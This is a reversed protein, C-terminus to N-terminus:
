KQVSEGTTAPLRICVELGGEARNSAAITGQHLRVAKEAIALGLGYGGTERTRAQDIRHFPEFMQQLQDSDVGPGSDLICISIQDPKSEVRLYVQEESYKLANRVINEVARSILKTDVLAQLSAPAELTVRQQEFNADQVLKSLLTTLEQPELKLTEPKMDLRVLELIEDILENIRGTELEIRDLEVAEGNRKRALELAIVLRTLPTRLEHSVDRLMQQQGQLLSQLRQAMNDFDRGLEGLEDKRDGMAESVRSSLDGEALRRSASQLLRVPKVLYHSLLMAVLAVILVSIAIRWILNSRAYLHDSLEHPNLIIFHYRAGSDSTVPWIIPKDRREIFKERGSRHEWREHNDDDEDHDRFQSRSGRQLFRHLRRPLPRGNVPKNYQDLLLVRLEKRHFLQQQWNKLAQNGKEEYIHAAKLALESIHEQQQESDRFHQYQIWTVTLNTVIILLMVLWFAFFIKWYLRRM